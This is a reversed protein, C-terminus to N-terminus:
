WSALYLSLFPGCPMRNLLEVVLIEHGWPLCKLKGQQVQHRVLAKGYPINQLEPQKIKGSLEIGGLAKHCRHGLIIMVIVFLWQSIYVHCLLQTHISQVQHPPLFHGPQFSGCSQWGHLLFHLITVLMGLQQSVFILYFSLNLSTDSLTRGSLAMLNVCM